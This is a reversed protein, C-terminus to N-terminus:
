VSGSLSSSYSRYRLGLAGVLGLFAGLVVWLSVASFGFSTWGLFSSFDGLEWLPYLRFMSLLQLVTASSDSRLTVRGLGLIQM